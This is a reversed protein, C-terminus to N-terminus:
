QGATCAQSVGSYCGTLCGLEDSTDWGCTTAFGSCINSCAQACSGIVQWGGCANEFDPHEAVCWMGELSGADEPAYDCPYTSASVSESEFVVVSSAMVLAFVGIYAISRSFLKKNKM